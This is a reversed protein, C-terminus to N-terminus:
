RIPQVPHGPERFWEDEEREGYDYDGYKELYPERQRHIMSVNWDWRGLLLPRCFLPLPSSLSTRHRPVVQDRCLKVVMWRLEKGRKEFLYYNLVFLCFFIFYISNWSFCFHFFYSFLISLHTIMNSAFIISNLVFLCCFFLFLSLCKWVIEESQITISKWQFHM